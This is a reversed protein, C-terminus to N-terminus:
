NKQNIQNRRPDWVTGEFGSPHNGWFKERRAIHRYVESTHIKCNSKGCKPILVSLSPEVLALTLCALNSM